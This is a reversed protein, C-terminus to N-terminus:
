KWVAKATMLEPPAIIEKKGNQWQVTVAFTRIQRGTRDVGYRGMITLADLSSLADRLKDRDVSGTKRIAAELIQGTAYGSAAQYSPLANFVQLFSETFTAAGPFPLTPEWHSSSFTHDADAKLADHYADLAPGITAYYARPSWGIHKLALRTSISENLHGCIMLVEAGSAQAKRLSQELYRSFAGTKLEDAFVVEMEFRKAWEKSSAAISRSFVDSESIIALKNLGQGLLVELFGESIKSTPTYVGFVYKYGKQWLTDASAGTTLLPYGFKETLPVIAETLESSSPGFVLDVKDVLILHQYRERAIEPENKDDYVILQVKRGLVGGKKNIDTEWIKYGKMIMSAKEAYKGTLGLSVGIKLSEAASATSMLLESSFALLISILIHRM